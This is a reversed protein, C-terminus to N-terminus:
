QKLPDIKKYSWFTLFAIMDTDAVKISRLVFFLLRRPSKLRFLRMFTTACIGIKM